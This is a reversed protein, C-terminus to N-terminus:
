WGLYVQFDDMADQASGALLPDALSAEVVPMVAGADLQRHLRALHGLCVLAVPAVQPDAASAFRLCQGQVWRWDPDHSALGVLTECIRAADGSALATEAGARDVPSPERYEM